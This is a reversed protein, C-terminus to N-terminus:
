LKKGSAFSTLKDSQLLALAQLTKIQHDSIALAKLNTALKPDISHTQAGGRQQYATRSM